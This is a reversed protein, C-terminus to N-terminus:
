NKCPHHPGQTEDGDTRGLSSDYCYAPAYHKGDFRYVENSGEGGGLNWFTIFDRMGNHVAELPLYQSGEGALILVAHDGAIQFIWVDVNGMPGGLSRTVVVHVTNDTSLQIFEVFPDGSVHPDTSAHGTVQYIDARQPQTLPSRPLSYRPSGAWAGLCVSSAILLALPRKM